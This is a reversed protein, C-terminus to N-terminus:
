RFHPGKLWGVAVYRTGKTVPTVHHMTFSPFVVADGTQAEEQANYDVGVDVHLEGGEYGYNLPIVLSLKRKNVGAHGGLDVHPRFQAPQEGATYRLVNVAPFRQKQDPFFDFQYRRNIRELNAQIRAAFLGYILSGPAYTAMDCRCHDPVVQIQGTPYMVQAPKFDNHGEAFLIVQSADAASILPVIDYPPLWNPFRSM